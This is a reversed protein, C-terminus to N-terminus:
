ALKSAKVGYGAKIFIGENTEDAWAAVGQRRIELGEEISKTWGTEGEPYQDGQKGVTIGGMIEECRELPVGLYKVGKVIKSLKHNKIERAYRELLSRRIKQRTKTTIVRKIEEM